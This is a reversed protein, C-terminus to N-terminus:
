AGMNPLEVCHFHGINSRFHKVCRCTGMNCQGANLGLVQHCRGLGRHGGQLDRASALHGRHVRRRPGQVQLLAKDDELGLRVAQRGRRGVGPVQLVWIVVDSVDLALEYDVAQFTIKNLKM